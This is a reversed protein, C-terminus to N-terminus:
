VVTILDEVRDEPSIKRRQRLAPDAIPDLRLLQV